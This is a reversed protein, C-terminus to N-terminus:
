IKISRIRIKIIEKYIQQIIEKEDTIIAIELNRYMGSFTLNASGIVTIGEGKPTLSLITKAHLKSNVYVNIGYKLFSTLFEKERVNRPPRTIISVNVTKSLRKIFFSLSGKEMFEIDSMYPSIIFLKQMRIQRLVKYVALGILNTSLVEIL